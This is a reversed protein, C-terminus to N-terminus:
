RGEESTEWCLQKTLRERLEVDSIEGGLEIARSIAVLAETLKQRDPPTGKDFGYAEALRQLIKAKVRHLEVADPDRSLCTEISALLQTYQEVHDDFSEWGSQLFRQEGGGWVDVFELLLRAWNLLSQKEVHNVNWRERHIRIATEYENATPQFTDFWDRLRVSTDSELKVAIEPPPALLLRSVDPLARGKNEHFDPNGPEETIAIDFHQIALDYKVFANWYENRDHLIQAIKWLAKAKANQLNANPETQVEVVTVAREYTRLASDNDHLDHYRDGLFIMEDVFSLIAELDAGDTTAPERDSLRTELDKVLIKSLVVVAKAIWEGAQKLSVAGGVALKQAAVLVGIAGLPGGVELSTEILRYADETENTHKLLYLAYLNMALGHHLEAAARLAYIQFERPQEASYSCVAIEWLRPAQETKRLLEILNLSAHQFEPELNSDSWYRLFAATSVSQDSALWEVISDLGHRIDSRSYYKKRVYDAFLKLALKIGGVEFGDLQTRYPSIQERLQPLTANFGQHRLYSQVLRFDLHMVPEFIALLRLIEDLADVGPGIPLGSWKRAQRDLHKDITSAVNIDQFNRGARLEELVTAVALPWGDTKAFVEDNCARELDGVEDAVGTFLPVEERTLNPLTLVRVQRNDVAWSEAASGSRATLLLSVGDPLREPLFSLAKGDFSVEDLADMICIAQGTERKIRNLVDWIMQRYRATTSPLGDIHQRVSLPLEARLKETVGSDPLSGRGMPPQVPDILLCNAQAILFRAIKDPESEHKGFHLLCGPLWPAQDALQRAVEGVPQTQSRLIQSLKACIASKGMGEPAALLVYGGKSLETKITHLWHERGVFSDLHRQREDEVLKALVEFEEELERTVLGQLVKELRELYKFLPAVITVMAPGQVDLALDQMEGPSHVVKNRHSEFKVVQKEVADGKGVHAIGLNKIVPQLTFAKHSSNGSLTEFKEPDAYRLVAKLWIEVKDILLECAREKEETPGSEGLKRLVPGIEVARSVQSDAKCAELLRDGLTLVREFIGHVSSYNGSRQFTPLVDRFLRRQGTFPHLSQDTAGSLVRRM